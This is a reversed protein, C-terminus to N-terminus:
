PLKDIKDYLRKSFDKPVDFVEGDAVLKVVNRTGDLIASCHNCHKFHEEMRTRVAPDIENDIFNSIERWVEICSIEIVM